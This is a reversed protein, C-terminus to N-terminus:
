IIYETDLQAIEYPWDGMKAAEEITDSINYYPILHSLVVRKIGSHLFISYCERPSMHNRNSYPDNDLSGCDMIALDANEFIGSLEPDFSTDSSYSFVSGEYEIRVSLCEVSHKTQRFFIKAGMLDISSEGCITQVNLNDDGMIGVLQNEPTKPAYVDIPQIDQHHLKNMQLAYKLVPIDSIHDSHLHTLFIADIDSIAIYKQLECLVGSGCDILINRDGYTVLYGSTPKGADPYGGSFGMIRVKISM